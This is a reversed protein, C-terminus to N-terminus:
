SAKYVKSTSFKELRSIKHSKDYGRDITHIQNKILRCLEVALIKLQHFLGKSRKKRILLRKINLDPKPARVHEVFKRQHCFYNSQAPRFLVHM